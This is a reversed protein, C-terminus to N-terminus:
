NPLGIKFTLLAFSVVFGTIIGGFHGWNDLRSGPLFAIAVNVMITIFISNILGFNNTQVGLALLAGVLGFIAGSAGVSPNANFFFSALSGVLGSLFYILAFGAAGFVQISIGGISWLSYMNVLLHIEDGHLFTSTLLRYYEGGAIERNSKWGMELFNQFSDSDSGSFDILFPLFYCFVNTAILVFLWFM